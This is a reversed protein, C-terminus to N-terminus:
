SALAPARRGTWTMRQGNRDLLPNWGFDTWISWTWSVRGPRPRKQQGLLTFVAASLQAVARPAFLGFHRVLHSYREPIHKAWRSVFEKLTCTVIEVSKAKKNKYEFQVMGDRVSKIRRQAIPPRRVYRGAYKLFHTKDGFAKVHVHWHRREDMRLIDEVQCAKLETSLQGRRSAERLLRIINRQWRRMIDDRDFDIQRAWKTSARHLGGATVMTHVHPNFDLRGNFTQPLAIVGISLGYRRRVYGEIACSALAPLAHTLRPNHQFFDWLTDPMTFTVESYPVDPMACWRERQWQVTGRYGCSTCARSKCTHYVIKEENESQFIEAGLAPTGCQLAKRFVARAESNASDHDWHSQTLDLIQNLLNQRM